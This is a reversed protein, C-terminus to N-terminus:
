VWLGAVRHFEGTNNGVRTLDRAKAQGAVLVEHGLPTGAASLAAVAAEAANM